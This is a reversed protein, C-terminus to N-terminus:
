SCWRHSARSASPRGRQRRLTPSSALYSVTLSTGQKAHDEKEERMKLSDRLITVERYISHFSAKLLLPEVFEIPERRVGEPGRLTGMWKEMELNFLAASGPEVTVVKTEVCSTFYDMLLYVVGDVVVCRMSSILAPPGQITRWMGQNTGDVTIVGFLQMAPLIFRIIRLAKYVGTSSIKGFAYSEVKGHYLVKKEAAIEESHNKPLELTVGTASNLVWLTLPHFRRTFCVVDLRTRMVIVSDDRNPIMVVVEGSMNKVVIDIESSPIRRLVKGSLDVIAVGHGNNRDRYDVALLPDRHHRDKHAAAFLPDSTLTRWSRRVARLHCLDKPRSGCWCRSCRTWPFNGRHPSM